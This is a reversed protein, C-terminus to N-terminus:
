TFSLLKEKVQRAVDEVNAKVTEPTVGYAILAPLCHALQSEFAKANAIEPGCNYEAIELANTKKGNESLVLINGSQARNAIEALTTLDAPNINGSFLRYIYKIRQSLAGSRITDVIKLENENPNANVRDSQQFYIDVGHELDGNTNISGLLFPIKLRNALNRLDVVQLEGDGFQFTGLVLDMFTRYLAIVTEYSIKEAQGETLLIPSDELNVQYHNRQASEPNASKLLQEITAM